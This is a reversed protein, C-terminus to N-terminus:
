LSRMVLWEIGEVIGYVIATTALSAMLMTGFLGAPNLRGFRPYQRMFNAFVTVTVAALLLWPNLDRVAILIVGIQALIFATNSIQLHAPM